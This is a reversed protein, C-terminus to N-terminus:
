FHHIRFRSIFIESYLLFIGKINAELEQIQKVKQHTDKIFSLVQAEYFSEENNDQKVSNGNITAMQNALINQFESNQKTKKLDEIQSQLSKILEAAQESTLKEDQLENDLDAVKKSYKVIQFDQNSKDKVLKSLEEQLSHNELKWSDITENLQTIQLRLEHNINGLSEIHKESAISNPDSILVVEKPEDPKQVISLLAQNDAFLEDNAKRLEGNEETVVKYKDMLSNLQHQIKKKSSLISAVNQDHEETMKRINESTEKGSHVSEKQFKELQKDLLNAHTCSNWTAQLSQIQISALSRCVHLLSKPSSESVSKISKNLQQFMGSFSQLQKMTFPNEKAEEFHVNIWGLQDEVQDILKEKLLVDASDLPSAKPEENPQSLELVRIRLNSELESIRRSEARLSENQELISKMELEYRSNRMQLDQNHHKASDFKSLLALYQNQTRNQEFKLEGVLKELDSNKKLLQLRDSFDSSVTVDITNHTEHNKVTENTDFKENTTKTSIVVKSVKDNEEQASEVKVEPAREKNSIPEVKKVSIRRVPPAVVQQGNKILGRKSLKSNDESHNVTPTLKATTASIRSSKEKENQKFEELKEEIYGLKENKALSPNNTVSENRLYPAEAEIIDTVLKVSERSPFDTQLNAQQNGTLLSDQNVSIADKAAAENSPNQDPDLTPRSESPKVNEFTVVHADSQRKAAMKSLVPSLTDKLFVNSSSFNLDNSYSKRFELQSLSNSIASTTEILKQTKLSLSKRNEKVKESSFKLDDLNFQQLHEM